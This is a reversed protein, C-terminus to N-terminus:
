RKRPASTTSSPANPSTPRRPSRRPRSTTWGGNPPWACPRGACPWGPPASRANGSAVARAPRAPTTPPTPRRPLRSWPVGRYRSRRM